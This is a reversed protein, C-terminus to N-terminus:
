EMKWFSEIFAKQFNATNVFRENFDLFWKNTSFPEIVNARFVNARIHCAFTMRAFTKSGFFTIQV